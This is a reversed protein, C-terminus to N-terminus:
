KAYFTTVSGAPSTLIISGNVVPFEGLGAMELKRPMLKVFEMVQEPPWFMNYDHGADETYGQQNWRRWDEGENHLSLYKVPLKEEERLFRVWDVM